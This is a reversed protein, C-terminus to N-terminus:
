GLIEEELIESDVISVAVSINERKSCPPSSSVTFRNHSRRMSSFLSVIVAISNKRIFFAAKVNNSRSNPFCTLKFTRSFISVNRLNRKGNSSSLEKPLTSDLTEDSSNSSRFCKLLM